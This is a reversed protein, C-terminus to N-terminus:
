SKEVPPDQMFALEWFHNNLFTDGTKLDPIDIDKEYIISEGLITMIYKYILIELEALYQKFEEFLKLWDFDEKKMKFGGTVMGFYADSIFATGGREWNSYLRVEPFDPKGENDTFFLDFDKDYHFGIKDRIKKLKDLNSDQEKGGFYKKLKGFIVQGEQDLKQFYNKHIRKDTRILNWAEITKGVIMFQITTMTAFNSVALIDYTDQNEPFKDKLLKTEHALGSNFKSFTSLETLAISLKIIDTGKEVDLEKLLESTIQLRNIKM